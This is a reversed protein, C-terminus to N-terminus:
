IWRMLGMEFRHSLAPHYPYARIRYELKGCLEPAIDLTFHFEGRDRDSAREFAFARQTAATSLERVAPELLLEVVIDGPGLEDSKVVVVFHAPDGFAVDRGPLSVPQLQVRPWAAAVRRKWEALEKALAYGGDAFRRGRAAAPKYYRELYEGVMRESNYQPLLTM